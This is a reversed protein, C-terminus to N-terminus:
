NNFADNLETQFRANQGLWKSGEISLHGNDRYLALDGSASHCLQQDCLAHDLWIIPVDEGLDKLLRYARKTAASYSNISFDCASLKQSTWLMTQLCQGLNLSSHPTPSIIIVRLGYTKFRSIIELLTQVAIDAGGSVRSGDRKTFASDPNTIWGFPSSVIVTTIGPKQRLWDDVQQNFLLCKEADDAGLAPALDFVPSCAQLTLQRLGVDKPLANAVSETVHAAFSDGWVLVKPNATTACNPSLTFGAACEAGFGFNPRFREAIKLDAYTQGMANARNPFGQTYIFVSAVFLMTVSACAALKFVNNGQNKRFPQEIFKWTICALILAACLLLVTQLTTLSEASRLRAFVLLPVHWLYLSYSILGLGVFPKSALVRGVGGSEDTFLIILVTGIVPLLTWASPFPTAENFWFIAGVILALGLFSLASSSKVQFRVCCSGALLEWARTHLAYFAINPARNIEFLALCFSAIMVAAIILFRKYLDLKILGFLFLPFFLYFQEEVSLSWLHLLPKYMNATEFYGAQRWFLINAVFAVTALCSKGFDILFQPSLWLMAAISSAVLVTFLAPFIRRTRREYFKLLSFTGENMEDLILSTILYGSIVFFVDVGVFGGSFARWGAHFFLVPLVAIARLGDIEPRYKIM